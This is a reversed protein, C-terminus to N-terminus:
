LMITVNENESNIITSFTEKNFKSSSYLTINMFITNIKQM